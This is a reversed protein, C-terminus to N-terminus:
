KKTNWSLSNDDNIKVKGSDILYRIANTLKEETLLPFKELITELTCNSMLLVPKIIEMMKNFELESLDAKNRKVCYDCKGCRRTDDENFYTLLLQSRCRNGTIIYNTMSEVRKRAEEKRTEYNGTSIVVDRDDLRPMTFVIQPKDKRAVYVIIGLQNLYNLAKVIQDTQANLRRALEDERINILDNFLGSYSRLMMKLLKDLTPNEVQFKYLDNRTAKVMVRSPLRLAETMSIIGEKELFRLSSFVEATKQNFRDCFLPLDFDFSEDIGTGVALQLHNCVARYISRITSIPPFSSNFQEQLEDLDTHDYLLIAWSSKGDRGARGAEQFYAEPSDPIDLHIVTKVNSKDIGMGFANTSVIVRTTENMWLLQAKDREEPTLGGHYFGAPIGRAQLQGAVERTKRRSRVYVISPGQLKQFIKELRGMKDEEYQVVYTLNERAFSQRFLNKKRFLLREQIDGIVDTTATATLALLPVKPFYQRIEAIELYPPRFDYGWQSICHAEDVAILNVKMLPFRALLLESKLREPSVYLFKLSGHVANDLVREIEFRNMGSYVANASIGKRQLGQVQDKMLAILPSIVLCIGELAMAPVQYCISKGGGTPLLALTDNGAMVSQIIEEQLPRFSSYGWYRILINRIPM